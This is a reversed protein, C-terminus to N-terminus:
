EHEDGGRKELQPIKNSVLLNHLKVLGGFSILIFFFSVIAAIYYPVDSVPQMILPIIAVIIAVLFKWWYKFGGSQKNKENIHVSQYGVDDDHKEKAHLSSLESFCIIGGIVAMIASFIDIAFPTVVPLVSLGFFLPVALLLSVIIYKMFSIPIDAAVKGTQGNVIAYHIYENNKDRISLFYVPFLGLKKDGMKFPVVPNSCGYKRYVPSKKLFRTSDMKGIYIAKSSYVGAEVDKCDAYFGALYNKNFPEAGKYDFPIAHSYEDYFKSLLDFSVGDYTANVDAHITYDDYYVYDGSRHSYRSGKNTCDGNFVLQYIGYPMYIGRFKQVVLEDKMYNPSFLFSAVKKKYNAICEERTKSFPIILEPQEQSVMKDELMGQSGCYSCFTVATEDFTMLSAGCQSCTYSTGELEVRKAKKEETVLEKPDFDSGCYECHVTQSKAKFQVEAGCHPCKNM